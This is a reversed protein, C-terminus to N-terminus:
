INSASYLYLTSGKPKSEKLKPGGSEDFLFTNCTTSSTLFVIGVAIDFGSDFM